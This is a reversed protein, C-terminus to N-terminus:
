VMKGLQDSRNRRTEWYINGTVSIRKGPLFAQIESDLLINKVDGVQPLLRLNKPEFKKNNKETPM